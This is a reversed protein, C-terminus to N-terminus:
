DADNDSPDPQRGAPIFGYRRYWIGLVISAAVLVILELL